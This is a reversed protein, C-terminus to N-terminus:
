FILRRYLDMVQTAIVTDDFRSAYERGKMCMLTRRGADDALTRIALRMAEEDNPAVYCSDPGGAEPFCGAATTIVPVGSYLAEIIPIGFGEFLSPYVFLDALQYLVALEHVTLGQLFLVRSEMGHARVYERVNAAYATEKGAVVLAVDSLERIARVVLGVNKREEITGVNLIFSSPLKYRERLRAKEAEGYQQKFAPHCGQYIVEVRDEAIGLFDVVDRKTQESIAIVRDAQRAAHRFKRFYILRDVPRYFQPYRVMILDHITVVSRIGHKTLGAPIEGSLGHFLTIQDRKLDTIMNRQRWLNYFMRDFPTGPLREIMREGDPVFLPRRNPKPNYLLYRHDPYQTSLMRVLDRGYNGLGTQNHFIRKAEYGINM